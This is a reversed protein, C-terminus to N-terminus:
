AYAGRTKRELESSALFREPWDRASVVFKRPASELERLLEDRDIWAVAAVEDKQLQFRSLPWDAQATFSQRFYRYRGPRAVFSKVGAAFAIGTLGIEEAAERYVNQRYTEGAAVTGAAAPGWKGAGQEKDFQRQALLIQGRSNTVWLNTARYITAYSRDGRRIAGIVHDEEDVLTIQEDAVSGNM